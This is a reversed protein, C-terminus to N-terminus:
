NKRRVDFVAGTLSSCMAQLTARAVTEPDLLTEPPEAGFNRMRMPTMTREPNICLVRVHEAAWEEALAQTMNVIAAKTASYVAYFARGRTYSSSAFNILCGQTARLWPYAEQSLTIAATLNTAIVQGIELASLHTLPKKILLAATNIVADIKGEQAAVTALLDHVQNQQTIDLGDLTRSAGYVRAGYRQALDAVAAGIGSSAGIVVVVKGELQSLTSEDQVAQTTRLQLLKEAFFLDISDTIKINAADGLVTGIAVEPMERRVVGCDCTVGVFGRAIVRQYAERLVGLHFGQPTQGRRLRSRDPIDAIQQRDNVEVITDSAPIVVDVAAYEDLASLFRALTPQDLLPRAADHTLVKADASFETLAALASATSDARDRGGEVIKMVKRWDNRMTVEWLTDQYGAPVVIIIHDVADCQEFVEVTYEIVMRGALKVFQKPVEGGFRLGRGGALIVAITKIPPHQLDSM